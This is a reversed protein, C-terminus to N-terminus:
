RDPFLPRIQPSSSVSVRAARSRLNEVKHGDDPFIPRNVFQRRKPAIGYPTLGLLDVVVSLNDPPPDRSDPVQAVKLGFKGEVVENRNMGQKPFTMVQENVEAIETTFRSLRASVDGIVNIILALHDTVRVQPAVFSEM